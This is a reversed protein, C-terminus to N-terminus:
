LRNIKEIELKKWTDNKIRENLTPRSMGLKECLDTKSYKLLLQQVKQKM